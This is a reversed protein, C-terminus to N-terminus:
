RELAIQYRQRKELERRKVQSKNIAKLDTPEEAKSAIKQNNILLVWSVSIKLDRSKQYYVTHNSVREFKRHVKYGKEIKKEISM